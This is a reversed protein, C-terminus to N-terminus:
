LPVGEEVLVARLRELGRRQLAKVAGPRKGVVEAVEEITLEALIRLALVTRQDETLRALARAVAARQVAAMGDEEVDGGVLGALVAEDAVQEPRRGRRRREDTLRRHAIVLVWSRFSREDGSFRAIGRVVGIFTESTLGEPDEAGHVRLYGAVLPSLEEWLRTLAWPAGQQAALLVSPFAEGFPTGAMSRM